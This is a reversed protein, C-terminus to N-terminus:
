KYLHNFFFFVKNRVKLFEEFSKKKSENLFESLIKEVKRMSSFYKKNTKEKISILTNKKLEDFEILERRRNFEEIM